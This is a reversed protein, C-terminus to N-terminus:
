SKAIELFRAPTIIKVDMYEKLKLLHEDGSIIFEVGNDVASELIIDDDPDEKIVSLRERPSTLESISLAIKILQETHVGSDEMYKQFKGERSLVDVIEELIANTIFVEIRKQEALKIIRYPNGKWFTGSLWINTDLVVKLM